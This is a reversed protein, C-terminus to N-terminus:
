PGELDDLRALVGDVTRFIEDFNLSAKSYDPSYGILRETNGGLTVGGPSSSILADSGGLIAAGESTGIIASNSSGIISSLNTSIGNDSGGIIASNDAMLSNNQGSVLGAFGRFSHGDGIVLNHSGTQIDGGMDRNHGLILNGLGNPSGSGLAGDNIQFNAGRLELITGDFALPSTLFQLNTLSTQMVGVTDTLGGVVNESDSVRQQIDDVDDRIQSNETSLNDIADEAAAIRGGQDLLTDGLTGMEQQLLAIAAWIASCDCATTQVSGDPFEYGGVRARVLGNVDLSTAPALTGIGVFGTIADVMLDQGLPYLAGATATSSAPICAAGPLSQDVLAEPCFSSGPAATPPPMSTAGGGAAPASPPSITSPGSGSSAPATAGTTSAATPGALLAPPSSTHQGRGADGLDVQILLGAGRNHFLLEGEGCTLQLDQLGDRDFDLWQGDRATTVSSLGAPAQDPSLHGGTNTALEVRGDQGIRLLDLDGDGDHDGWRVVRSSWPRALESRESVDAFTGDGRNHLLRDPAGPSARLVDPLGDGDFDGWHLSDAQPGPAQAQTPASVTAATLAILILHTNM